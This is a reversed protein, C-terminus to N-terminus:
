EPLAENAVGCRREMKPESVNFIANRRKLKCFPRLIKLLPSYTNVLSYRHAGKLKKM